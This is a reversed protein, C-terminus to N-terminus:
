QSIWGEDSKLQTYYTCIWGEDPILQTNCFVFTEHNVHSIVSNHILGSFSQHILTSRRSQALALVVADEIKLILHM